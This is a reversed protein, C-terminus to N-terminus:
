AVAVAVTVGARVQKPLILVAGPGAALLAAAEAVSPTGVAAAAARGPNPVTVAALDAAPFGALRWGHEEALARVREEAARRDLTALVGVQGPRIGAGALAARVPGSLAAGSRAGIGVAIM